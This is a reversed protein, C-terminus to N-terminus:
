EVEIVTMSIGKKYVPDPYVSKIHGYDDDVIVGALVLGDKYPKAAAILNDLDRRGRTPVVFTMTVTAQELPVGRPMQERVYAITDSQAKQTIRNIKHVNWKKGANPSLEPPPLPLELRLM